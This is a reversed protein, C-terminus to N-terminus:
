ISNANLIRLTTLSGAEHGDSAPRPPQLSPTRRRLTSKISASNRFHHRVIECSKPANAASNRVGPTCCIPGISRGHAEDVDM